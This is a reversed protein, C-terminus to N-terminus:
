ESLWFSLRAQLTNHLPEGLSELANYQLWLADSSPFHNCAPRLISVGTLIGAIYALTVTCTVTTLSKFFFTHLESPIQQVVSSTYRSRMALDLLWQNWVDDNALNPHGNSTLAESKHGDYPPPDSNDTQAGHDITNVADTQTMEDVADIEEEVVNAGASSHRITQGSTQVLLM